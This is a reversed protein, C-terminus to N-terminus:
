RVYHGLFVHCEVFPNKDNQKLYFSFPNKAKQKFLIRAAEGLCDDDNILM